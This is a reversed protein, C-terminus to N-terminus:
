IKNKLKQIITALNGNNCKTKLKMTNKIYKRNSIYRANRIYRTNRNQIVLMDQDSLSTDM